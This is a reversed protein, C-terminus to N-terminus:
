CDATCRTPDYTVSATKIGSAKGASRYKATQADLVRRLDDPVPIDLYSKVKENTRELQNLSQARNFHEKALEQSVTYLSAMTESDLKRLDRLGSLDVAQSAIVGNLTFISNHLADNETQQLEVTKELDKVYLWGSAIALLLLLIPVLHTMLTSGLGTVVKLFTKM